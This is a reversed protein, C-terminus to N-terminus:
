PHAGAISKASRAFTSLVPWRVVTGTPVKAFTTTVLSHSGLSGVPKWILYEAAPKPFTRTPKAPLSGSFSLRTSTSATRRLPRPRAATLM